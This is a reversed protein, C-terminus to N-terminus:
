RMTSDIWALGEHVRAWVGPYNRGACGRGWSTAGYITWVGSARCVLPGGSDGQCADVIKGDSTKGQACLMSDLIEHSGYSTAKCATNSLVEVKGEQLVTPQPGDSRLTGWGTIWCSTGPAVDRGRRPLCVTGVCGNLNMARDLQVLALDFNMTRDSYQPHSYWRRMNRVQENGSTRLPRHEGGVVQFSSFKCHAASLVWDATILMGGCWPM